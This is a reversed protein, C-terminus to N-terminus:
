KGGKKSLEKTPELVKQIAEIENEKDTSYDGNVGGFSITRQGVSVIIEKESKFTIKNAM